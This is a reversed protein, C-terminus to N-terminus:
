DKGNSIDLAAGEAPVTSCITCTARLAGITALMRVEAGNIEYVRERERVPRRESGRPLDVDRTFVDRSSRDGNRGGGVRTHEGGDNRDRDNERPEHRDWM